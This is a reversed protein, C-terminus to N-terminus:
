DEPHKSRFHNYIKFGLIMAALMFTVANAIIIAKNAIYLGYILWLLVGLTFLTYMGLSLSETDRTKITKIAQPLFSSTTLSAALYGILEASIQM